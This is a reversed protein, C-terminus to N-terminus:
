NRCDEKKAPQLTGIARVPHRHCVAVNDHPSPWSPKSKVAYHGELLRLMRQEPPLADVQGESFRALRRGPFIVGQGGRSPYRSLHLNRRVNKLERTRKLLSVRGGSRSSNARM